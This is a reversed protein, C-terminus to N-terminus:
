AKIDLIIKIKCPFDEYIIFKKMHSFKSLNKYFKEKSSVLRIIEMKMM